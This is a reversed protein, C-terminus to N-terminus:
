KTKQLNFIIIVSSIMSFSYIFDEIPITFFRVALNEENNYWVIPSDILSGTLIGNVILFPILSILYTLGIFKQKFNLKWFLLSILGSISVSLTYSKSTGIIIFTICAFLIASFVIQNFFNEKIERLYFSVCSYIFTCAFPVTWFFLIEEIPLNFLKLGILYDENFGWIGNQTFFVDWIIFPIAVITSAIITKGWEKFFFIKRDFSLAIPFFLTAIELYIYLPM